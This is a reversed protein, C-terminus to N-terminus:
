EGPVVAEKAIEDKGYKLDVFEVGADAGDGRSAPEPEGDVGDALGNRCQVDATAGFGVGEGHNVVELQTQSRFADGGEGGVAEAAVEVGEGSVEAGPKARRASARIVPFGAVVQVIAHEDLAFLTVASGKGEGAHSETPAIHEEIPELM